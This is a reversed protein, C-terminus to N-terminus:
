RVPRAAIQAKLWTILANEASPDPGGHRDWWDIVSQYAEREAKAIAGERTVNMATADVIYRVKAGNASPVELTVPSGTRSSERYAVALQQEYQRNNLENELFRRQAYTLLDTKQDSM